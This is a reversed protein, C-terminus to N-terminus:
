FPSGKLQSTSYHKSNKQLHVVNNNIKYLKEATSDSSLDPKSFLFISNIFLEKKDWLTSNETSAQSERPLYKCKNKSKHDHLFYNLYMIKEGFPLKPWFSTSRLNLEWVNEKGILECLNKMM